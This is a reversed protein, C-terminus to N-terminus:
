SMSLVILVVPLSLVLDFSIFFCMDLFASVHHYRPMTLNLMDRRPRLPLCLPIGDQNVSSASDDDATATIIIGLPSQSTQCEGRAQLLRIGITGTPCATVSGTSPDTVELANGTVVPDLLRTVLPLFNLKQAQPRPDLVPHPPPSHLIKM